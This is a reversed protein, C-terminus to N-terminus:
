EKLFESVYSSKRHLKELGKRKYGSKFHVTPTVMDAIYSKLHPGVTTKKLHQQLKIKSTNIDIRPIPMNEPEDSIRQAERNHIIQEPTTNTLDIVTNAIVFKLTHIPM